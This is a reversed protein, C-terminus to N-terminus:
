EKNIYGLVIVVLGVIIKLAAHWMPETAIDLLGPWGLIGMLLVIVGVVM